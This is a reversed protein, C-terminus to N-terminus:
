VVHPCRLAFRKTGVRVVLTCSNTRCKQEGYAEGHLGAVGGEKDLFLHRSLRELKTGEEFRSFLLPHWDLAARGEFIM